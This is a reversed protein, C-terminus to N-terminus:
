LTFPIIEAGAIAAGQSSGSRRVTEQAWRSTQSINPHNMAAFAKTKARRHTM